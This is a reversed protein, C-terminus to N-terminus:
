KILSLMIKFFFFSLFLIQIVRPLVTFDQEKNEYMHVMRSIGIRLIKKNLHKFNFFIKQIRCIELFSYYNSM